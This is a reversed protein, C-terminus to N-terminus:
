NLEFGYNKFNINKVFEIIIFFQTPNFIISYNNKYNYYFLFKAWVLMIFIIENPINM